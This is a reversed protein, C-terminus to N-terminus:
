HDSNALRLADAESMAEIEALVAAEVRDAAQAITPAEFMLSLPLDTDFVRRMRGMATTALLSHGGLAFFNDDVGIRDMGLVASWIEALARETPTRPRLYPTDRVAAPDPAPLSRLDLKGNALRPLTDLVAISSPVAYSPLVQELYRRVTAPDLDARAAPAVYAALRKDAPSPAWSTVVVDAVLPHARVAAEVEGLEIRVGRIKVQRDHRGLFELTGDARRRGWDGTRYLRQGTRFPDPVFAAATRAPDGLYGRALTNGGIYLEGAVGAPLPELRGDLVHVQNNDIPRGIPVAGSATDATDPEVTHCTSDISVETAGWTNDLSVRGGFCEQFRRAAAPRLAEGSSLVSRLPALSAVDAPTLVDLFLDLMSPVFNVHVARYRIAADTIARPDRHLGPPLLAVRAGVILPWFIEVAADDFPLTTKHLVTEGPRLGHRHQMWLMRSVWGDHPCAVGKPRGTSGSTYYLAALQDPHVHPHPSAPGSAPLDATLAVPVCGSGGLDAGGPGVLCVPADANRLLQAVRAPPTETEIPLYVGGARLIGLIGVIMDTSRDLLLGVVTEARVGRDRLLGAIKDAHATLDAYSTERDGEVVAIAGPSQAAQDAVLDPLSRRPTGVMPGCASRVAEDRESATMLPLQDLPTDPQDAVHGAVALLGHLLSDMTSATYLGTDYELGIILGEGQKRTFEITLDYKAIIDPAALRTVDVGPLQPSPPPEASYQLLVQFLPTRSLDREPALAKVLHDFPMDQHGYAEAARDRTRELLDAFRSSASVAGRLMLINVFLGILPETESRAREAATTGVAIDDQGTSRAFVAQCVALLTMFLTAGHQHGLAELKRTLSEPWTMTRIDGHGERQAPRPFDPPFEFPTAGDLTEQWYRLASALADGSLLSDQWDAVDAYQFPLPPLAAPEGATFSQYLSSLEATLVRHSSGDFAIHHATLCLVHEHDSRRLLVARFPLDDALDLPQTSVSAAMAEMGGAQAVDADGIDRVELQFADPAAVVGFPEDGRLSVRTRLAEHRTVIETLAARLAPVDLQGVLRLVIPILYETRNAELQDLFWLREQALCLRHPLAPNLRPIEPRAAPAPTAEVQELSKDLVAAAIVSTFGAVTRHRFLDRLLTRSPVGPLKEAVRLTIQGGLLSHGGLAFFDDNIGVTELGLVDAWIQAVTQEAATRPPEYATGLDPRASGPAPLRKKDVKGHGQFPLEPLTTLTAPIMHDPLKSALFLRLENLDIGTGSVPVVYGAIRRDGPRDERVMVAAAAVAAHSALCAEIEGLEVRFGRIKVQDDSRGLFELRGAHDQCTLDGTRYMRDGPTPAYPDPVFRDATLGRRNLYGRCVGPGGIYLDGTVSDRVPNLDADLVYARMGPIPLGIPVPGDTGPLVLEGTCGVTGETPGYENVITTDPAISHWARASASHFTEGGLLLTRLRTIRTDRGLRAVLGDLHSPTVKLLNIDEGPERLVAALQDLSDGDPLLIAAGGTILPLFLPTVTFDFSLSTHVLASGGGLAMRAWELYNTLGDHTIGAGKPRGTSGSTFIVYALQAPDIVRGPNADPQQDLPLEEFVDVPVNVGPVAGRPSASVLVRAPRADNIMDALREPPQAPDLPLYAAGAKLIGLLMAVTDISRESAIGVLTEAGVGCAMLHHAVHNARRNLSAYSMRENGCVAATADPTAAAQAEVQSIVTLAPDGAATEKM